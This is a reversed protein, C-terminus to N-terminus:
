HGAIARRRNPELFRSLSTHTLIRQIQEIMMRIGSNLTTGFGRVLLNEKITQISYTLQNFPNIQDRPNSIFLYGM